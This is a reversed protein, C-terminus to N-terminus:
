NYGGTPTGSIIGTVPDITLGLPLGTATYTLTDGDPDSFNGSVDLSYYIGITVEQDDEATDLVPDNNAATTFGSASVPTANPAGTQAFHTYYQTAITLGTHLLVNASAVAVANNSAVAAAGLHDEGAVIEAHTPTTASETVVSYVATADAVDSTVSSTSTTSGTSADTQSSLTPQGSASAVVIEILVGGNQDPGTWSITAASPLTSDLYSMTYSFDSATTDTAGDWIETFGNNVTTPGTTGGQAVAYAVLYNGSTGGSTLITSSTASTNIDSSIFNTAAAVTSTETGSYNVWHGAIPSTSYQPDIGATYTGVDPSVLGYVYVRVDAGSGTSGTDNILTMATGNFSANSGELAENGEIAVFCLLLSTAATTTHSTNLQSVPTAAEQIALTRTGVEAVAM